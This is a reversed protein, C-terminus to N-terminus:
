SPPGSQFGDLGVCVSSPSVVDTVNSDRTETFVKDCYTPINTQRHMCIYVATDSLADTYM